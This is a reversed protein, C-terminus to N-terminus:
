RGDILLFQPLRDKPLRSEIVQSYNDRDVERIEFNNKFSGNRKVFLELESKNRWVMFEVSNNNSKRSYPFAGERGLGEASLDLVFVPFLGFLQDKSIAVM